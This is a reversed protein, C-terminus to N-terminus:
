RHVIGLVAVRLGLLVTFLLLALSLLTLRRHVRDNM